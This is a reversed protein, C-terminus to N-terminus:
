KPSMLSSKKVGNCDSDAFQCFPCDNLQVWAAVAVATAFTKHVRHAATSCHHHAINRCIPSSSPFGASKEAERGTRRDQWM